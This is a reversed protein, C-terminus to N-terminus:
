EHEGVAYDRRAAVITVSFGAVVDILTTLMLLFFISTAARDWILFLILCAIFVIMSVAHDVVSSGGTRTAKVIEFFLFFLAVALVIAGWDVQWAGKSPLMVSFLPASFDIGSVALGVYLLFPIILLPVASLGTRGKRRRVTRAEPGQEVTVM